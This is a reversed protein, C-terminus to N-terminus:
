SCIGYNLQCGVGCHDSTKGCYGYYSCCYGSRCSGYGLGCRSNSGYDKTCKGFGVQCGKSVKCLNTSTTCTGNVSCCKGSGCSKNGSNIGCGYYKSNKSYVIHKGNNIFFNPEGSSLNSIIGKQGIKELYELMSSTTFKISPNESMITAIVGSVIAASLSTGTVTGDENYNNYNTFDVYGNGPAYIDVKKGYNSFTARKYVSSSLVSNDDIAGVCIVNDFACPYYASDSKSIANGKNGATVVVIAGKKNLEDISTKWSNIIKSDGDYSLYGGFAINVITKHSRILNNKIYEFGQIINSSKNDARHVGLINAKNAIGYKKGAAIDSLQTGHNSYGNNNSVDHCYKKNVSSVTGTGSIIATCKVTRENTNSFEDHNFNFGRDYMIIDIGKGATSPYYYYDDYSSILSSSYKGQSVVSLHFKANGRVSVGAWKTDKQITYYNYHLNDQIDLEHDMSCDSVNPLSEVTDILKNNLYAALITLNESTFIPYVFDSDNESSTESTELNRKKLLTEQEIEEFKTINKFSYKNEMIINEIENVMANIFEKTDENEITDIGQNINEEQNVYTSNDYNNQIVSDNLNQSEDENNIIENNTVENSVVENNVTENGVVENSVTENNIVENSVTESSVVENSVAENISQNANNNNNNQSNYYNNNNNQNYYNNSNSNNNNQNYYNNNNSNSNNQNYYNNNNNNNQYYSNNNNNNNSPQYYNNYYNQRNRLRKQPKKFYQLNEQSNPNIETTDIYILYYGDGSYQAKLTNALNILLTFVSLTYIINIFKTM